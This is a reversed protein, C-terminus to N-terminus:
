HVTLLTNNVQQYHIPLSLVIIAKLLGQIIANFLYFLILFSQSM